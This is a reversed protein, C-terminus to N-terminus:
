EGTRGRPKGYAEHLVACGDDRNRDDRVARSTEERPDSIEVLNRLRLRCGTEEATWRKGGDVRTRLRYIPQGIFMAVGSLVGLFVCPFRLM